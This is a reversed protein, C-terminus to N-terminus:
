FPLLVVVNKMIRTEFLNDFRVLLLKKTIPPNNQTSCFYPRVITGTLVLAVLIKYLDRREWLVDASDEDQM